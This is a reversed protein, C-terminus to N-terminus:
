NKKNFKRIKDAKVNKTKNKLKKPHTIDYGM